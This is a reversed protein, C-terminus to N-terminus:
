VHRLADVVQLRAARNAPVVAAIMAIVVLLLWTGLLLRASGSTLVELPVAAVHRVVREPWVELAQAELVHRHAPDGEALPVPHADAGKCRAIRFALVDRLQDAADVEGGDARHQRLPQVSLQRRAADAVDLARHQATDVLRRTRSLGAAAGPVKAKSEVIVILVPGPPPGCMGAEAWAASHGLCIFALAATWVRM